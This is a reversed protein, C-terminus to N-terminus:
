RPFVPPHTGRVPDGARGSIGIRTASVRSQGRLRNRAHRHDDADLNGHRRDLLCNGVLAGHPRRPLLRALNAPRSLECFRWTETAVISCAIAWWPATRGGLFYDRLTQQGRRFHAGFLTIGVLYLLIIAFDSPSIRM